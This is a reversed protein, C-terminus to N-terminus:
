KIILIIVLDNNRRCTILDSGCYSFKAYSERVVVSIEINNTGLNKVSVSIILLVLM